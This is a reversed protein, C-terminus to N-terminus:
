FRHMFKSNIKNIILQIYENEISYTHQILSIIKM